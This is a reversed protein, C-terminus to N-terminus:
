VGTGKGSVDDLVTCTGSAGAPGPVGLAWLGSDACGLLCAVGASGSDASCLVDEGMTAAGVDSGAGSCSDMVAADVRAPRLDIVGLFELGGGISGEFGTRSRAADGSGDIASRGREERLWTGVGFACDSSGLGLSPRGTRSLRRWLMKLWDASVAGAGVRVLMRLFGGGFPSTVDASFPCFVTVFTLRERPLLCWFFFGPTMPPSPLGPCKSSSTSESSSLYQIQSSTENPWIILQSLLTLRKGGITMKKRMEVRRVKARNLSSMSVFSWCHSLSHNWKSHTPMVCIGARLAFHYQGSQRSFSPVSANPLGLTGGEKGPLPRPLLYTGRKAQVSVCQFRPPSPTSLACLSSDALLTTPQAFPTQHIIRYGTQVIAISM